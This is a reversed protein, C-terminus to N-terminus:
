STQSGSIQLGSSHPVHPQTANRLGRLPNLPVTLDQATFSKWSSIFYLYGQIIKPTATQYNEAKMVRSIFFDIWIINLSVTVLTLERLAYSIM